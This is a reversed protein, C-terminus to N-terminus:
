SLYKERPGDSRRETFRILEDGNGAEAAVRYLREAEPWQGAEAWMEALWVWGSSDGAGAAAQYLLAAYAADRHVGLVAAAKCASMTARDSLPTTM